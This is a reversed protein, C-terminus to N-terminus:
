LQKVVSGSQVCIIDNPFLIKRLAHVVDKVGIGFRASTGIVDIDEGIRSKVRFNLSDLNFLTDCHLMDCKTGVIIWRRYANFRFDYKEVENKIFQIEDFADRGQMSMDVVLIIVKSRWLHRFIRSNCFDFVPGPKCVAPLDAIRIDLGDRYSLLGIQPRVTSFPEPGIRSTAQTMSSILSTKGSNASGLLVCDTLLRLELEIKKMEGLQGQRGDNKKRKSPGVGGLGGSCLKFTEGDQLFQYLFKVKYIKRGEADKLGTCYKERIITGLPVTIIKDKGHHGRSTGDAVSPEGGDGGQDARIHQSLGTFSDEAAESRMYISGGHGGYGPGKLSGARLRGPAAEGGKGSCVKIHIFDVFSPELFRATDTSKASLASVMYETKAATINKRLTQSLLMSFSCENFLICIFFQLCRFLVDVFFILAEM